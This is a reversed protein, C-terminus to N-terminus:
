NQAAQIQSHIPSKSPAILPFRPDDAPFPPSLSSSLWTLL